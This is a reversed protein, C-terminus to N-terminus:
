ETALYAHHHPLILEIMVDGEQAFAIDLALDQREGRFRWNPFRAPSIFLFPGAATHRLRHGVGAEIDGVVFGLQKIAKQMRM